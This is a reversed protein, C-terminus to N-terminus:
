RHRKTEEVEYFHIFEGLTRPYFADDSELFPDYGILSELKAVLVAFAISDLGSDLLVLDDSLEPPSINELRFVELLTSEITERMGLM